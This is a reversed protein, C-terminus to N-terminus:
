LAHGVIKGDKLITASADHGIHIGLITPNKSM